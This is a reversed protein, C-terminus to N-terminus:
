KAQVTALTAEAASDFSATLRAVMARESTLMSEALQTTEADGARQASRRLLEYGAIKLHEFAYAFAALKAPTDSQAQFFFGWNLGFLSMATDKVSSSGSGLKELRQELLRAHERSQELNQHCADALKPDGAIDQSKSLLKVGQTELAHAEIVHKRLDAPMKEGPTDRHSAQEAADFRHELRGMMTREQESNTRAAAITEADDAAEAFRILMEYGAWEMAEYSYAHAALRGPTEPQVAAFLLFGKGGLKMIAGQLVSPNEGHAELRKLLLDAQQATETEHLRFDGALGPDGALDPASKMQVLAQQEVSYMDKLFHVLQEQTNRSM